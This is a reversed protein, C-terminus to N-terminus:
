KIIKFGKYYRLWAKALIAKRTVPGWVRSDSSHNRNDGMMFYENDGLVITKEKGDANPEENKNWWDPNDICEEKGDEKELSAIGNRIVITEGPLGIVRKIYLQGADEGTAEPAKFIVIDGRKPDTFYYPIRLGILRDGVNITSVMSRTPIVANIIVFKCLLFAILAGIAIVRVYELVVKWGSKAEDEKKNKHGTIIKKKEEDAEAKELMEEVESLKAM